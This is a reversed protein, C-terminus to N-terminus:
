RNARYRTPSIGTAKHFQRSFYLSDEYGVKAAIDGVSLDSTELLYRAYEIKMRILHEIPSFGTAQKYRKSFHYKSLGVKEALVQLNLPRDLNQLMFAQVGAVDFGSKQEGSADRILLAIYTLLQKLMNSAHILAATDYGKSAAQLLTQFQAILAPSQGIATVPKNGATGLHRIYEDALSGSFHCWYISWPDRNDSRYHHATGSPMIMVEGANVEGHWNNTKLHGKGSFCYILINDDHRRRSMNHRHATEYYGIALPYCDRALPHKELRKRIMVPAVLRISSNALPWDSTRSM